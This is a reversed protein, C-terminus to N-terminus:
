LVNPIVIFRGDTEGANQILSEGDVERGTRAADLRFASSEALPRELSAEGSLSKDNDAAQMAQFFSLMQEFAPFAEKLAADDMKIHALEATTRLEEIDM